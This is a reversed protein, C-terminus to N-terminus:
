ALSAWLFILTAAFGLVTRIAHLRAWRELLASTPAGAEAPSVAKLRRNTPMIALLTYPWNAVLV